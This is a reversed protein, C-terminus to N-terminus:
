AKGDLWARILGRVEQASELDKFAIMQSYGGEIALLYPHNKQHSIVLARIHNRLFLSEELYNEVEEYNVEDDGGENIFIQNLIKAREFESKLLLYDEYFVLERPFSNKPLKFEPTSFSPIYIGSIGGYQQLKESSMTKIM